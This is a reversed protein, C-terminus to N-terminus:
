VRRYNAVTGGGIYNGIRPLAVAPAYPAGNHPVFSTPVIAGVPNAPTLAGGLVVDNTIDMTAQHPQHFMGLGQPPLDNINHTDFDYAINYRSNRQMGAINAPVVPPVYATM